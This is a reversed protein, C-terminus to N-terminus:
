LAATGKVDMFMSKGDESPRHGISVLCSKGPAEELAQALTKSSMSIGFSELMDKLRFAAADTLWMNSTVSFDPLQKGSESLAEVLASQDVDPQPQMFKFKIVAASNGAKGMQKVEPVGDVICMYTGIPLPRPPKIDEVPKNLIDQFTSM